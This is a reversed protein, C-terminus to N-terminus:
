RGTPVKDQRDEARDDAANDAPDDAPRGGASAAADSPPPSGARARAFLLIVTVVLGTGLGILSAFNLSLWGSKVLAATGLLAVLVGALVGIVTQLWGRDAARGLAARLSSPLPLRTAATAARDLARLPPAPDPGGPRRGRVLAAIGLAGAVPLMAISPLQYRWGFGSLASATLLPLFCAALLLGIAVRDGSRRSRGFGLMAAAAVLALGAMLPGPTFVWTRYGVMFNALNPRYGTHMRTRISPQLMHRQIFTDVSWYHNQFLWYSAPHGPADQTRTPAFGLATDALVLKTYGVPQSRLVRKDFDKLVQVQSMGKPPVVNWAPGRQRGWMFWSPGPRRGIPKKPCLMKEYKPLV